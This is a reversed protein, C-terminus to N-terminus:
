SSCWRCCLTIKERYDYDIDSYDVAECGKSDQFNQLQIRGIEWFLHIDGNRYNQFLYFIYICVNKSNSINISYKYVFVITISIDM